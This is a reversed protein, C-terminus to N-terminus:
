ETVWVSCLQISDQEKNIIFQIKRSIYIKTFLTLIHIYIPFCSGSNGEDELSQDGYPRGPSKQGWRDGTFDRTDEKIFTWMGKRNEHARAAMELALVGRRHAKYLPSLPPTADEQSLEAELGNSRRWSQHERWCVWVVWYGKESNDKNNRM